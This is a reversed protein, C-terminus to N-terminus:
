RRPVEKRRGRRRGGAEQRRGGLKELTILLSYHTILLLLVETWFSPSFCTLKRSLRRGEAKKRLLRGVPPAGGGVFSLFM